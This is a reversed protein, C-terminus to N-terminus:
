RKVELGWVGSATWRYLRFISFPHCWSTGPVGFIIGVYLHDWCKVSHVSLFFIFTLSNSLNFDSSFFPSFTCLFSKLFLTHFTVISLSSFLPAGVSTFASCSDPQPCERSLTSEQQGTVGALFILLRERKTQTKRQWLGDGHCKFVSPSNLTRARLSDHM